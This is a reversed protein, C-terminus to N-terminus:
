TLIDTLREGVEDALALEALLLIVRCSSAHGRRGQADMLRSLCALLSIQAGNGSRTRNDDSPRGVASRRLLFAMDSVLSHITPTRSGPLPACIKCCTRSAIEASGFAPSFDPGAALIMTASIPSSATSSSLC